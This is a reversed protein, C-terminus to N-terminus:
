ILGLLALVGLTLYALPKLYRVTAAQWVLRCRNTDLHALIIFDRWTGLQGTSGVSLRDTCEVTGGTPNDTAVKRHVAHNM